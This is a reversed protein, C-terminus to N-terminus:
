LSNLKKLKSQCSNTLRRTKYGTRERFYTDMRRLAKQAFGLELWEKYARWPKWGQVEVRFLAFILGTRDKGQRCHLFVPHNQENLLENFIKKIDEDKPWERARMPVNIFKIGLSKAIERETEVSSDWQLNIITKIGMQQLQTFDAKATPQSGRWIGPTVNQLREIKAQLPLSLCFITLFILIFKHQFM